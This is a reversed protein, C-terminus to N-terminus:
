PGRARLAPPAPETDTSSPATGCLGTRVRGPRSHQCMAGHFTKEPFVQFQGHTAPGSGRRAQEFGATRKVGHKVARPVKLLAARGAHKKGWVAQKSIPPSPSSIRLVGVARSKTLWKSALARRQKSCLSPSVHRYFQPHYHFGHCLSCM